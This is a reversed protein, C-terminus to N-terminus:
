KKYSEIYKKLNNRYIEKENENKDLRLYITQQGINTGIKIIELKVVADYGLYNITVKGKKISENNPGYIVSSVGRVKSLGHVLDSLEKKFKFKNKAM